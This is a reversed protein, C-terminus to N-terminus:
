IKKASKVPIFWSTVSQVSYFCILLLIECLIIYNFFFSVWIEKLLMNVGNKLSFFMAFRSLHKGNIILKEKQQKQHTSYTIKKYRNYCIVYLEKLAFFDFCHSTVLQHRINLIYFDCLVCLNKNRNKSCIVNLIWM